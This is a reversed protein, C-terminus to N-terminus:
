STSGGSAQLHPQSALPPGMRRHMAQMLQAAMGALTVQLLQGWAELRAAMLGLGSGDQSEDRQAEDEEEQREAQLEQSATFPDFGAGAGKSVVPWTDAHRSSSSDTFSDHLGNALPQSTTPGLLTLAAAGVM